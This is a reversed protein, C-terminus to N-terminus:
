GHLELVSGVQQPVAPDRAEPSTGIPQQTVQRPKCCLLKKLCTRFEKCQFTYVLPNVSSNLVYLYRSLIFVTDHRDLWDLNCARILYLIPNSLCSLMYIVTVIIMMKTIRKRENIVVLHSADSSNNKFWLSHIVRAYLVLLVVVPVIYEAMLWLLAYSVHWREPIREECVNRDDDYISTYFSPLLIVTALTWCAPLLVKLKRKTIKHGVSYPHVVAYFREVAVLVVSFTSALCGVWGITMNTVIKCLIDGVTGTPHTFTSMFLHAPAFFAGLMMDAVALNLLLYNMPTKMSRNNLIILIVLSNDVLDTTLLVSFTTKLVIETSM